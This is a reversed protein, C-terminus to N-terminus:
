WIGQQELSTAGFADLWTMMEYRSHDLAHACQPIMEGVGDGEEMTLASGAKVLIHGRTLERDTLVPASDCHATRGCFTLFGASTSGLHTQRSVWDETVSM